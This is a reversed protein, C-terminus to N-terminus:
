LALEPNKRQHELTDLIFRIRLNCAKIRHEFFYGIGKPCEHM